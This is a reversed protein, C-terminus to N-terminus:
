IQDLYKPSNDRQRIRELQQTQIIRHESGKILHPIAARVLADISGYRKGTFPCVYQAKQEVKVTKSNLPFLLRFLSNHADELAETNYDTKTSSLHIEWLEQVHRPSTKINSNRVNSHTINPVLAVAIQRKLDANESKLRELEQLFHENSRRAM